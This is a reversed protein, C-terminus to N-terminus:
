PPCRRRLGLGRLLPSGAFVYLAVGMANALLDGASAFRNPIQSQLLEIGLGYLLLFGWKAIGFRHKPWGLDLLLALVLYAALHAWKDAIPVDPLSVPQPSLALWSACLLAVAFLLRPGAPDYRLNKM